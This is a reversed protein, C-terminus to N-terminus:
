LAEQIAHAMRQLNDCYDEALPSIQVANGGIEEAFSRSQSSDIEAQYFITKIGQKKAFDIIQQLHAAKAEKGDQELTYMTLGFEHAFYAFAPHYAIFAQGKHSELMVQVAQRTANIQEILVSANQRYDAANAPDFAAMEDSMEQVMIVARSPSLWVHPDRSGGLTLDAYHEAVRKEQAIHRTTTPVIPLINHEESAVGISFYLAARSLQMREKPSPEYNAPSAGAPILTLISAHEGCVERAFAAQPAISVAIVPTVNGKAVEKKTETNDCACLLLTSIFLVASFLISIRLTSVFFHHQKM